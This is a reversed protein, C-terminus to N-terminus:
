ANRRKLYYLNSLLILVSLGLCIVIQLIAPKIFIIMDFFFVEAQRLAKIPTFVSIIAVILVDAMIGYWKTQMFTLTHVVSQLLILFAFQCFFATFVNTDWGFIEIMNYIPEKETSLKSDVLYYCVINLFSTGVAFVVYNLICGILYTKKMVGINMLKSYNISALFIPAILCIQYFYNGASVFHNNVDFGYALIYNSAAVLVSILTVLYIIWTSYKFNVKAVTWVKGINIM